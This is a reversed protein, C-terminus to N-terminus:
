WNGQKSVTPMGVCNQAPIKGGGMANVYEGHNAYVTDTTAVAFHPETVKTELVGYPSVV